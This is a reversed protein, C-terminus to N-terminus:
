GGIEMNFHAIAEATADSIANLRRQYEEYAEPHYHKLYAARGDEWYASCTMCDPSALMVKYYRPLAVGQEHLFEFVRSDDWGELPFLYEIGDDVDGSKIPARMKDSAKQGRIVLTIGDAKMREHMPLMLSRMCCSYRDQILVRARKAAIGIPTANAPVIDSPIGFQAIVDPQRGEIREFRPVMREIQEVLERTEPFSDGTDLWYVTLRDWYPRMLYLLALSDKGGSFQLAIREHREIIENM